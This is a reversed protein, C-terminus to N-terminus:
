TQPNTLRGLFLISGSRTDRILFLFPHDARFVPHIRAAARTMLVGTAAAAETGEENVDAYAKHIVASVFLDREGDMGSFDAEDSFATKMGMAKLTDALDFAGTVKFRPLVVQVEDTRLKTLATQVKSATLQRELEALGDTKKPLFVDMALENGAYPLELAQFTDGDLYGFRGTQAMLPVTAPAGDALHFAGDRTLQKKFPSSWDGKFYIANTLALLTDPSPLPPELLEPIKDATQKAVWANITRRAKESANAFDVEKLEADYHDQVFKLYAPLFPHGKQAWLANALHLQYGKTKPDARLDRLLGGVAPHLREPDLGFHLTAAMEEATQGRAGAYTMALATSISAPSFFLNGDKTRLRDYLDFAFANNDKVARAQDGAPVQSGAHVAWLAVALVLM